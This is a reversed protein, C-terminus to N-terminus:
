RPYLSFDPEVVSGGVEAAVLAIAEAGGNTLVLRDPDVDMTWALARTAETPDPYRGVADLHRAILQTPDPAMPNLSVSLDLVDLGLARALAPGDGGHPGPPPIM